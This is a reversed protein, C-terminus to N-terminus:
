LDDLSSVWQDVAPWGQSIAGSGTFVDVYSSPNRAEL